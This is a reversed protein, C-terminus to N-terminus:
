KWSNETHFPLICSNLSRWLANPDQVDTIRHIDFDLGITLPVTHQRFPGDKDKTEYTVQRDTKLISCPTTYACICQPQYDVKNASKVLKTGQMAHKCYTKLISMSAGRNNGLQLHQLTKACSKEQKGSYGVKLNM